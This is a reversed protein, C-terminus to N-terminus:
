AEGIGAVSGVSHVVVSCTAAIRRRDLQAADFQEIGLQGSDLSEVRLDFATHVSATSAARSRAIAASSAVALPFDHPGSCPTGTVMLSAIAVAPM